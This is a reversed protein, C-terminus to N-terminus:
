TRRGTPMPTATRGCSWSATTHLTVHTKIQQRGGVVRSNVFDRVARTEPASFASPGRYTISSPSGSSGGCCAWRYSYNRNLDTGIATTGANPQRNKRWARYPSDPNGTLDYVFGDPNVAFIIYVERDNVLSRVQTDNGYRSSLLRLLYLAQEVTMHERAHHLADFLIEAEPEDVAVNDSIKAAWIDRNGYSKGISFVDVIGPYTAEAAMIEAVM